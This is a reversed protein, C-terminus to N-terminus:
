FLGVAFTGPCRSLFRAALVFAGGGVGRLANSSVWPQALLLFVVRRLLFSVALSSCYDSQRKYLM